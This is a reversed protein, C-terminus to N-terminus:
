WLMKTSFYILYGMSTIIFVLFFGFLSESLPSVSSACRACEEVQNTEPDVRLSSGCRPCESWKSQAAM